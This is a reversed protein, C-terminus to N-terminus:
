SIKKPAYDAPSHALYREIEPMTLLGAQAGIKQVVSMSNIPGWRLAEDITKGMALASVVTSSFADGAGTREYPPKPDPYAPMYWTDNEHYAYAGKVGDTIIVTKAGLERIGKLTMKIDTNKHKLIREAEDTNCFFIDTHAYIGALKETGLKIQYTGPQFALRTGPHADIYAPILDYLPVAEEGMSSLYMWQPSGIDPLTYAFSEHKILITREDEYWLVYHYNTHKGAQISIFDASVGSGRLAALCEVGNDDDGINGVLATKLGLRAGAVAANASNGVARVIEVFEYPVKDGFRLSLLCHERNIDCNVSADKLRIFTDTATDGIAVIDFNEM